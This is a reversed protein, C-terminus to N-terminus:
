ERNVEVKICTGSGPSSMIEFQWGYLRARERMSAIGLRGQRCANAPVFGIGDDLIQMSFTERNEQFRVSINKAHAHKIINNLAERVIQYLGEEVDLALRGTLNSNLSSKLGARDEVSTLRSQIAAVLGEKELIPPRLEYILLRMDALSEQANNQIDNIYQRARDIEHLDIQGSAAQAYLCIGYLSQTVSDHLERSLRQREELAAMKKAEEYLRANEIAIGAQNALLTMLELDTANFGNFRDSEVDLIGIVQDKIKIPVTLESKTRCGEVPVYRPERSVDPIILSKGTGAVWGTIGDTGVKLRSPKAQFGPTEWLEGAGMRFVVEDDEVLGIEIHYYHFTRQVLIVLEKLLENIELISTLHQSVETLVRFQEARHQAHSFLRANELAISMSAAFTELLRIDSEQFANEHDVNQVSLIGAVGGDVLM